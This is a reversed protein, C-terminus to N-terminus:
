SGRRRMFEGPQLKGRGRGTALAAGDLEILLADAPERAHVRQLGIEVGEDVNECRSFTGVLESGGAVSQDHRDLPPPMKQLPTPPPPRPRMAPVKPTRRGPM